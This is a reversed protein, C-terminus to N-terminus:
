DVEIVYVCPPYRSEDYKGTKPDVRGPDIRTLEVVLQGTTANQYTVFNSLQMTPSDIVPNRDDITM